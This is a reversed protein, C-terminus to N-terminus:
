PRGSIQNLHHELHDVYSVILEGLTMPPDDGIRCITGIKEEPILGIVHVLHMNYHLWLGVLTVWSASAYAQSNVWVDGDYNPWTLEPQTLARVFRQHNNSASDILHGLVQKPSWGGERLPAAARQPDIAVLSRSASEILERLRSVVPALSPALPEALKHQAVETIQQRATEYVAGHERLIQSAPTDERLLALLLHSPKIEEDEMATAEQHARALALKADHSLPLDVSTSIRPRGKAAPSRAEITKRIASLASGSVPLVQEITSRAERMLGLLLHETEITASALCAAEYRAFFIVRRSQETYHEFMNIRKGV